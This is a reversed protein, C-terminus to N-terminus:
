FIVIENAGVLVLSERLIKRIDLGADEVATNRDFIIDGGKLSFLNV